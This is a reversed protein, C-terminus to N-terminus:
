VGLPILAYRYKAAKGGLSSLATPLDDGDLILARPEEGERVASESRPQAALWRDIDAPLARVSGGVRFVPLGKESAQRRATSEACHLYAAIQKWGVLLPSEKENM